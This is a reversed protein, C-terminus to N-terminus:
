GAWSSDADVHNVIGGQAGAGRGAINVAGSQVGEMNDFTINLAYNNQFGMFDNDAVGMLGWQYGKM